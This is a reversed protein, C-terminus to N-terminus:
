SEIKKRRPTLGIRRISFIYFIAAGRGGVWRPPVAATAACGMATTALLWQRREADHTGADPSCAPFAPATLPHAM